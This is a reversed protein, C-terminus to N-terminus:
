LHKGIISQSMHYNQGSGQPEQPKFKCHDVHFCVTIHIGKIVNNAVCPDCPNFYYGEDELSKRLKKYYILSATM